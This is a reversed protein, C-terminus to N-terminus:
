AAGAPDDDTASLACQQLVKSDLELEQALAAETAADNV